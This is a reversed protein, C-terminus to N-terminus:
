TVIHDIHQLALDSAGTDRDTIPSQDLLKNINFQKYRYDTIHRM